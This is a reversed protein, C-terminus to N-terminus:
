EFAVNATHVTDNNTETEFSIGYPHVSDDPAANEFEVDYAFIRGFAVLVPASAASECLGDVAYFIYYHPLSKSPAVHTYTVEAGDLEVLTSYIVGDTSHTIRVYANEQVNTWTLDIDDVNTVGVINIAPYLIPCGAVTVGGQTVQDYRLTVNVYGAVTVGGQTVRDPTTALEGAVTVGGQSVRQEDAM